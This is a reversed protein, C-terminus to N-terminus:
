ASTRPATVKVALLWAIGFVAFFMALFVTLSAASGVSAEVMRGVLYAGFEGIVVFVVYFVILMM